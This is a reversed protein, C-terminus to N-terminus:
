KLEYRKFILSVNQGGFGFSNSMVVNLEKEQAKHPVLNLEKPINEDLNDLNITPPVINDLLAQICVVAEIGGAAGIAHGHMSKTSSIALKGSLAYDGFAKLIGNIEATDGVHTSTGHTNIYDIDEPKLGADNIANTMARAAGDGTPDPAVMDYADCSAGYGVLEAYIKAGRKKAHELEELILLGSGESMVFGDRDKDYPRSAKQPEENRKSLTRAAGFAGIGIDCIIAETGGTIMVDADGFLISRYAEGICHGSTACASVVAFNKAKAKHRQGVIGASMNAIVMPVTFPSCKIPGKEIIAVHNKQISIMGGAGCGIVVGLRYEDTNESTIGADKVAEDSAIVAFQASRDMRKAEKPDLYNTPEFDAFQGSIKIPNIEWNYMDSKGSICSKGNKVNDWLSKVGVGYPSVTGLGTVVVRRSKNNM